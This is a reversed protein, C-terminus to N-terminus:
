LQQLQLRRRASPCQEAPRALMERAASADLMQGLPGAISNGQKKKLTVKGAGEDGFRCWATSPPPAGASRRPSALLHLGRAPSRFTACAVPKRSGSRIAGGGKDPRSRLRRLRQPATRPCSSSLSPCRVAIRSRPMPLILSIDQRDTVFNRRYTQDPEEGGCLLHSLRCFRESLLHYASPIL